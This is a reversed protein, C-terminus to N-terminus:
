EVAVTSAQVEAQQKLGQFFKRIGASTMQHVLKRPMGNPMQTIASEFAIQCTKEGSFRMTGTSIVQATGYPMCTTWDLQKGELVYGWVIEAQMMTQVGNFPVGVDIVYHKHKAITTVNTVGPAIQRFIAEQMLLDWVAIRHANIAVTGEFRM